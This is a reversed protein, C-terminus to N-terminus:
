SGARRICIKACLQTTRRSRIGRWLPVDFTLGHTVTPEDCQKEGLGYPKASRHVVVRVFSTRASVACPTESVHAAVNSYAVESWGSLRALASKSAEDTLKTKIVGRPSRNTMRWCALWKM